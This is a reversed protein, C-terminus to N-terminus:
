VMKQAYERLKNDGTALIYNNDRAIIYNLTDHPSLKKEINSLEIAEVLQKNDANVTKFDISKINGTKDNIEDNKVMDCVYVNDSNIFEKLINANSLDTIINTDTLIIKQTINRM